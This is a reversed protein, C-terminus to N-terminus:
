EISEKVLEHHCFSIPRNPQAILKINKSIEVYSALIVLDEGKGEIKVNDNIYCNDSIIANTIKVNKSIYAENYILTNNIESNSDIYVNDGIIVNPGIIGQKRIVVNEGVTCPPIINTSVDIDASNDILNSRKVKLNNLIDNMLLINGQLLEYPKGVDKWIGKIPYHYLNTNSAVKPFVDKEISVKKNPPIYSFIEPELIYVGANIPMPVYNGGPPKYKDKELFKLLQNTKEDTILVGYRSPDEVVKSAITGIGGQNEHFKLMDYFDFNLIVDGNLMFFNDDKLYNEALKIAGATGLPHKENTYRIKLDLKEGEKFYNRIENAMVSVALVIEKVGASKLLIMQREIVPRNVIPILTKPTTCTLPRLRTGWGGSLIIGKTM